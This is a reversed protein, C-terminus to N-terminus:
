DSYNYSVQIESWKAHAAVSMIVATAFSKM